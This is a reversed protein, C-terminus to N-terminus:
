QVLHRKIKYTQNLSSLKDINLACNSPNIKGQKFLDAMTDLDLSKYKKDFASDPHSWGLMLILHNVADKDYDDLLLSLNSNNNRKSLKKGDLCILGSHAFVCNDIFKKAGDWNSHALALALIIQKPTNMLHDAGRIIFNINTDIDDVISALQYTVNGDSRMLMTKPIQDLTTSTISCVGSALDYFSDTLLNQSKASLMVAGDSLVAYGNDFLCDIAQKYRATRQSQMFFDDYTLGLRNLCQLILDIHSDQNRAQDTDDIRLIFKGNSVKAALYNQIACRAGGLHFFGTPSPAFRTVAPRDLVNGLANKDTRDKRAFNYTFM